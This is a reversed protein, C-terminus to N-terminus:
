KPSSPSQQAQVRVQARNEMTSIVRSNVRSGGSVNQDPANATAIAQARMAAPDAVSKFPDAGRSGRTVNQNPASAARIAEAQMDSRSVASVSPHVGDYTEAHVPGLTLTALAALVTAAIHSSTKM